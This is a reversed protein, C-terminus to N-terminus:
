PDPLIALVSEVGRVKSGISTRIQSARPLYVDMRSGLKIFGYRYGQDVKDGEKLYCLIRRALFGSIQIFTVNVGQDTQVTIANRENSKSSKDLSANMFSGPTYEIRKVEGAIPTKNSHVDFPNMFISILVADEQTHPNISNEIKIVEGDAPSLVLNEGDPKSREPDRYFNVIVFAVPIIVITWYPFAFIAFVAIMITNFSTLWGERAILYYKTERM